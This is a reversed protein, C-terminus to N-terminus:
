VLERLLLRLPEGQLSPQGGEVLGLGELEEVEGAMIVGGLRSHAFERLDEILPEGVPHDDM